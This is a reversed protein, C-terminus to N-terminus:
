PTAITRTTDEGTQLYGGDFLKELAKVLAGHSNCAKVIFAANAEGETGAQAYVAAVNGTGDETDDMIFIRRENRFVNPRGAKWPTATHKQQTM